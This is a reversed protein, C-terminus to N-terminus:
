GQSPAPSSTDTPDAPTTTDTPDPTETEPPPQGWYGVTVTDGEQLEGDPDVSAVTDADHTGDNDVEVPTVDLGLDELEAIVEARDRGLYDDADITVTAPAESTTPETPETPESASTTPSSPETASSSASPSQEDTPEDDGQNSLVAVAVVVALVLLALLLWPLWGPLGGRGPPPVPTAITPTPTPDTLVPPLVTTVPAGADGDRLASALANGDPYRDAPDKELARRVVAALDAPVDAPLEPVPQRLHAVAIAVPSDAVFPRRGVLAEYAVVGLSYVDSAPGATGGEAQEPSLYHPTGVVQGTETLAVGDAARAIGFDTIKVRRDPTVLLNAPKVDRHVIGAAHAAGIADAAQALLDRAVEPDLRRGGGLLASLPRGDVLEMVLYPTQEHEGYDFVQAIGPHHLAAAHQAERGFRTRFTADDAYEPKLLKVAVTRGLRTDTARWVEGMGGTALRSELLYRHADDAWREPPGATTDSV